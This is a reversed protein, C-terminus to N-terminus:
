RLSRVPELGARQFIAGLRGLALIQENKIRVKDWIRVEQLLGDVIEGILADPQDLGAPTVEVSGEVHEGPDLRHEEITMEFKLM